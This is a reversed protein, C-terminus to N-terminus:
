FHGQFGVIDISCNRNVMDEIMSYVKDSKTEMWGWKSEFNFDNYILKSNPWKKRAYNFAKCPFDDIKSWPTDWSAVPTSTNSKDIYENLVDIYPFDRDSYREAVKDFYTYM